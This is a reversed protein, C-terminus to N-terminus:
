RIRPGHHWEVGPDNPGQAPLGAIAVLEKDRYVLPVHSRYWPVIGAERLIDKVPRRVKGNTQMSEGGQRFRVELADKPSHRRLCGLQGPLQLENDTWRLVKDTVSDIPEVLYLSGSFFRIDGADWHLQTKSGTQATALAHLFADLRKAPPMLWDKSRVWERLVARQRRLALTTLQAVCLRGSRDQVRHLDAGALTRVLALDEGAQRASRSLGASAQPWRSRLLPLVTERVFVRDFQLDFNHPDRIFSLSNSKVYGAISERSWPLLPRVLWGAGFARCAPMGAQGASGGGRMLQLVLTEAQDDQHQALLLADGPELVSAFAEYRAERAAAELGNGANDAVSVRIVDCPVGLEHATKECQRAWKASEDQLGHNIHLARVPSSYNAAAVLHLLATSDAGGSFAVWLRAWPKAIARTIETQVALPTLPPSAM